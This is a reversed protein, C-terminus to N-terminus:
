AQLRKLLNAHDERPYELESTQKQFMNARFGIRIGLSRLIDLTESTYSNAPHSMSMPAEGLVESLVDSNTRYERAQEAASLGALHTPHSHSHLGIIHGAARLNRWADADMWLRPALRDCDLGAEQMLSDMIADYASPGLVADRLFRFRRDDDTYFPFESLYTSPHFGGLAKAAMKGWSSASVRDFFVRYFHEVSDFKTTRFYRYLELKVPNGRVAATSVFWFATLNLSQLVPLAIDYQCRLNDDFSICADNSRLRGLLASEQWDQAGLIRDRGVYDLIDVLEGASISGQGAPHYNNHFHHFMLGHPPM